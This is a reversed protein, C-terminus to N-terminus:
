LFFEGKYQFGQNHCDEASSPESFQQVYCVGLWHLCFIFFCYALLRTIHHLCITHFLLACSVYLAPRSSFDVSCNVDWSIEVGLVCATGKERCLPSQFLPLLTPNGEGSRISWRSLRQHLVSEMWLGSPQSPTQM